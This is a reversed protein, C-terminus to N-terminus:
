DALPRAITWQSPSFLTNEAQAQWDTLLEPLRNGLWRCDDSFAASDLFEAFLEHHLHSSRSESVSVWAAAATAARESVVILAASHQSTFHDLM